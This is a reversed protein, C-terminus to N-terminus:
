SGIGNGDAFCGDIALVWEAKQTESRAAFLWTNMAGYVAWCNGGVRESHLLKQVPPDTDIRANRLNIVTVEDGSPVAYIHLYPPRLEAFHRQWRLPQSSSTTPALLYSSKLVGPNKAVFQVVAQLRPQLVASATAGANGPSQAPEGSTSASASEPKWLQVYKRLLREQKPWISIANDVNRSSHNNIRRKLILKAAEVERAWRRAKQSDYFDHVLSAGRPKWGSLEEEGKIYDQQSDLRWVDMARKASTPRLLASFIGSTTHVVRASKWLQKFMSQPRVWSRPRIQLNQDLSFTMPEDLRTSVVDVPTTETDAIGEDLLLSRRLCTEATGKMLHDLGRGAAVHSAM